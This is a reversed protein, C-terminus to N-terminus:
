TAPLEVRHNTDEEEEWDVLLDLNATFSRILRDRQKISGRKNQPLRKKIIDWLPAYYDDDTDNTMSSPQPPTFMEENHREVKPMRHRSRSFTTLDDSLELGAYAAAQIVFSLAKRLTSDSIQPYVRAIADVLQDSTAVSLNAIQFVPSYKEQLLRALTEKRTEHSVLDRLLPTPDTSTPPLAGLFRLASILHHWLSRSSSEFDDPILHQPIGISVLRDLFVLLTLFAVYPPLLPKTTDPPM